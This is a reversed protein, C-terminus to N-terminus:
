CPPERHRGVRRQEGGYREELVEVVVLALDEGLLEVLHADGGALQDELDVVGAAGHEDDALPTDLDEELVVGALPDHELPLSRALDEALDREEVAARAGGRHQHDLVQRRQRDVAVIEAMEESDVGLRPEVDDRRHALPQAMRHLQQAAGGRAVDVDLGLVAPGGTSRAASQIASNEPLM